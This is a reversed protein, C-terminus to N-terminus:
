ASPLSFLRVTNRGSNKAVYMATDASKILTNEDGGHEPYIAIGISSSIYRSNGALDFPSHLALRIKEAVVLADEQSEVVPLLVIFEDGGIRAVTDSERLCVQIRKAADKLLQDGFDHGLMDNVPKFEDLDIFMLALRAGNRRAAALALQLHEALLKRNPLGTLADHTVLKTLEENAIRLEITRQAVTHELSANIENIQQMKQNVARDMAIFSQTLDDLEDHRRNGHELQSLEASLAANQEGAAVSRFVRSLVTLPRSVTDAFYWALPSIILLCAAAILGLIQVMQWTNKRVLEKSQLAAISGVLRKDTYLPMLCQYFGAGDIVTENFTVAPSQAASADPRGGWDPNRYAAVAGNSYGQPTFINIRTDTVRSLYDVFADDLYQATVVQGLQKIEQKGTAPDFAVGMIPVHGEIALKGDLVAFNATEQQALRGGLRMEVGEAPNSARLAQNDLEEGDKLTALQFTSVPTREVFGVLEHKNDGQAFTVLNGTADYIAVKSLRAVRGIKYTERTLQQYTSRLTERETGSEAYQALYWLTSGLNKQTALQRSAALLSAKRDNLNDDIVRAAKTLVANSQDLHQQRIVVSVALMSALAVIIGIIVAGILLEDRLRQIRM